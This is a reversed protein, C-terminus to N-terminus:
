DNVAGLVSRSGAEINVVLILTCVFKEFPHGVDDVRVVIVSVHAHQLNDVLGDLAAVAFRIGHPLIVIGGCVRADSGGFGGEFDGGVVLQM